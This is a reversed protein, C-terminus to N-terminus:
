SALPDFLVLELVPASHHAAGRARQAARRREACREAARARVSDAYSDCACRLRSATCLSQHRTVGRAGRGPPPRIRASALSARATAVSGVPRREEGNTSIERLIVRSKIWSDRHLSVARSVLTVVALTSRNPIPVKVKANEHSDRVERAADSQPTVGQGGRAPRFQVHVIKSASVARATAEATRERGASVGGGCLTSTQKVKGFSNYQHIIM